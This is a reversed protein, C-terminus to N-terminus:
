MKENQALKVNMGNELIALKGQNKNVNRIFDTEIIYCSIM